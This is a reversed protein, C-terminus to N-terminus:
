QLRPANRGWTSKSGTSHPTGGDMRGEVSVLWSSASITACCTNSSAHPPENLSRGRSRTLTIRPTVEACSNSPEMTLRNCRGTHTLARRSIPRGSSLTVSAHSRM